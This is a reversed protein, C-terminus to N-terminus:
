VPVGWWSSASTKQRFWPSLAIMLIVVSFLCWVAPMENPNSTLTWALIPGSFAHLAVFRWAGYVLPLAFATLMYTAFGAQFGVAQDFPVLLGNYPIDWAIHWNGSVTCFAAGCLPAGPVCHGLAPLPLLQVLMVLSSLACLGYVWRRVKQAVVSPVLEMAFANIFFPQFVIHLFSLVTVATNASTGCADIVGYGAVQLAEMATFYGMTGWIAFPEGRRWTVASAMAGGVVLAASAEISWCM